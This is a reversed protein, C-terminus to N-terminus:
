ITPYWEYGWSMNVLCGPIVILTLFLFVAVEMMRLARFVHGRCITEGNDGLIYHDPKELKIRLAGAIASMPWGANMSATKNRDRKLIRWSNRRDEKLLAASVIMLGATLRSPIFNLISDLRASFWGININEPDKYGVMSDLTNIVRFVIAGPVGFMAFYFLASTIGDVTSEAISEVTGSLVLEQNLKSTDRRVIRSLNRRAECIDGKELAATVKLSAGRMGKVAFTLKLIVAATVIYVV